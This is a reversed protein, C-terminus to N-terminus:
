KGIRMFFDNHQFSKCCCLYLRTCGDGSINYLYGFIIYGISIARSICPKANQKASPPILGIVAGVQVAAALGHPGPASPGGGSHARRDSNLAPRAVGQRRGGVTRWRHCHGRGRGEAIALRAARSLAAVLRINDAMLADLPGDTIRISTLQRALGLRETRVAIAPALAPTTTVIAFRRGGAAAERMASEAIGAVPVSLLGRLPDVGPDGFASVIVGNSKEALLPAMAVVAEVAIRLQNENTILPAGITATAGELKVGPALHERAIAVMVATTAANTNPNVLVIRKM